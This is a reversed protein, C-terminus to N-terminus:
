GMSPCFQILDLKLCPKKCCEEIIGRRARNKGQTIYQLDNLPMFEDIKYRTKSMEEDDYNDLPNLEYARFGLGSSPLVSKKQAIRGSSAVAERIEPRCIIKMMMNLRRGCYRLPSPDFILERMAEDIDEPVLGANCSTTYTILLILLIKISNSFQTSNSHFHM